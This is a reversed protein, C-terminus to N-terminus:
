QINCLKIEEEYKYKFYINYVKVRNEGQSWHITKYVGPNTAGM